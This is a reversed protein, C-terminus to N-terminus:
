IEALVLLDDDGNRRGPATLSFWCALTERKKLQFIDADRKALFTLKREGSSACEQSMLGTQLGEMRRSAFASAGQM